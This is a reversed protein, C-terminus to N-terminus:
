LSHAKFLELGELKIDRLSIIREMLQYFGFCGQIGSELITRIRYRRPIGSGSLQISSDLARESM